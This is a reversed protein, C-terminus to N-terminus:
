FRKLMICLCFLGLTEKSSVSYIFLILHKNGHYVTFFPFTEEYSLVAFFSFIEARPVNYFFDFTEEM